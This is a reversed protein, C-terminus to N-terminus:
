LLKLNEVIRKTWGRGFALFNKNETLFELRLALFQVALQLPDAEMTKQLTRPGIVGDVQAGAARQLWKVAQAVGSNIAADFVAFRVKGPLQDAKIADWYDRKYLFCAREVSLNAIDEQPYARKSIGYKTEGGPDRPDNVYGGEMELVVSMADMFRM